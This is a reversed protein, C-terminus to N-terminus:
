KTLEYRKIILRVLAISVKNLDADEKLLGYRNLLALERSSVLTLNDINFNEKNRDLFFVKYGEPIEGYHKEWMYRQKFVWEGEKNRIYVYGDSHISEDGEKLPKPKLKTDLNNRIGYNNMYSNIKGFSLNLNFKKNFLKVIEKRPRGPSIERLYENQEKTWKHRESM